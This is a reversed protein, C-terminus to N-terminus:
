LMYPFMRFIGEMVFTTLIVDEIMWQGGFVVMGSKGWYSDRLGCGILIKSSRGRRKWKMM